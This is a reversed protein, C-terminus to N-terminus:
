PQVWINSSKWGKLIVIIDIKISHCQGADKDRSMIMYKTKEANVELETVEGAVVFAEPNKKITPISRGLINVYAYVLLQHTGNLIL